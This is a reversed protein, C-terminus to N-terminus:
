FRQTAQNDTAIQPDVAAETDDESRHLVGELGSVLQRLDAAPLLAHAYQMIEQVGVQLEQMEIIADYNDEYLSKSM